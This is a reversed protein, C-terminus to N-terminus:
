RRLGLTRGDPSYVVGRGLQVHEPLTRLELQRLRDLYFWEFSRPDPDDSFQPIHARLRIQFLDLNGEQWERQALNM